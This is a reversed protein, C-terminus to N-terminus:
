EFRWQYLEREPTNVQIKWKSIYTGHAPSLTDLRAYSSSINGCLIAIANRNRIKLVDMLYGLRQCVAKSGYRVAYKSLLLFDLEKRAYWLAQAIM